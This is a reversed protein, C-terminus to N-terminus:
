LALHERIEWFNSLAALSFLFDRYEGEGFNSYLSLSVQITFVQKATPRKVIGM